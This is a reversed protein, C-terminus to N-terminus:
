RAQKQQLERLTSYIATEIAMYRPDDGIAFVSQHNTLYAWGLKNDPDCYGMQGGSGPSGFM